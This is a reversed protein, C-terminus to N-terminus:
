EHRLSNVPNAIAVRTAHFCVTLLAIILAIAGSLIFAWPNIDTRYAFNDLWNKIVYFAIPWAIINALVVWKTFEKSLLALIEFVSAGLVKRIGIEKTRQETVFAALGFLGLCAIFIALASFITAVVSTKEESDYLRALTQDVFSYSMPENGAFNKWSDGVFSITNKINASSIRLTLVNAPQRVKSLHLVLPRVERHLSEYNFDKIVGIIKFSTGLERADLSTLEKGVPDNAPFMKVAAENVVVSLSDTSFDKSFFRGSKLDIQFTKLFDYDVDLFQSLIPDTGTKKNFLWGSGPIGNAFMLSANTASLIDPNKTLEQKFAEM